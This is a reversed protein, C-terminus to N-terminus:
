GFEGARHLRRRLTIEIASQSIQRFLKDILLAEFGAFSQVCSATGGAGLNRCKIGWTKVPIQSEISDCFIEINISHHYHYGGLRYVLECGEGLFGTQPDEAQQNFGTLIAHVGARDSLCQPKCGGREREMDGM